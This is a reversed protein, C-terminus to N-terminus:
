CAASNAELVQRVEGERERALDELLGLVSAQHLRRPDGRHGEVGAPDRAVRQAAPREFRGRRARLAPLAPMLQEADDMIFVRRVYLKIGHRHTATGCTSRRARRSTCCSRTNRSARSARTRGPWRRRRLRPRRAQLVGPVARRHDREQAAGVARSAQNVTEDEDPRSRRKKDEDWEEKQMVSRAHRHPRFVQPHDRAAPLRRAPRGRGRAPAAHGRHRARGQGGDRHTYEGGGDSEWRM